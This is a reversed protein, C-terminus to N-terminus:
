SLFGTWQATPDFVIVSKKKLLAAEIIGQAAVTKGSGTSGAVLTHMQLKNLDIFTRVDTEAVKWIFGSHANAQPNQDELSAYYATGKLLYKGLPTNEPVKFETIKSISTEVAFAEEQRGFLEGTQIDVLQLDFQVDVISTRGLNLLDLQVQLIEGPEVRSQLPQIKVDLLKGEPPLVKITVPISAEEEGSSLIIDGDYNGPETFQPIVITVLVDREEKPALNITSSPFSIFQAPEGEARIQLENESNLTNVLKIRFTTTEGAFLEKYISVTEVKVGGVNIFSKILEEIKALDSSSLGGGGGGGGGGSSGGSQQGGQAEVCDQSCTSSTELYTAECLGNGCKNEALFYASFGTSNGQVLSLDLNRSSDIVSWSGLCARATYNWSPIIIPM